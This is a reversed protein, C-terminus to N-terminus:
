KDVGAVRMSCRSDLISTLQDPAEEQVFHGAGNVRLVRLCGRVGNLATLHAPTPSTAHPANGLVVTVPVQIRAILSEVSDPEQARSLRQMM